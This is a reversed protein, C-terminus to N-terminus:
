FLKDPDSSWFFLVLCCFSRPVIHFEVNFGSILSSPGTHVSVSERINAAEELARVAKVTARKKSWRSVM